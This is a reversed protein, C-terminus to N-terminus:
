ISDQYRYYSSFLPSKRLFRSLRATSENLVPTLIRRGRYLSPRVPVTYHGSSDKVVIVFPSNLAIGSDKLSAPSLQTIESVTTEVKADGSVENIQDLLANISSLRTPSSEPASSSAAVSGISGGTGSVAGAKAASAGSTAAGSVIKPSTDPRYSNVNKVTDDNVISGPAGASLSTQADRQRRIREMMQANEIEMQDLKDDKLNRSDRTSVIQNSRSIEPLTTRQAALAQSKQISATDKMAALMDEMTERQVEMARIREKRAIEEESDAIISLDSDGFFGSNRPAVVKEMNKLREYESPMRLADNSAIMDGKYPTHEPLTQKRGKSSDKVIRNRSNDAPDTSSSARSPISDGLSVREGESKNEAAIHAVPAVESEAAGVPISRLYQEKVKSTVFNAAFSSVGPRTEDNAQTKRILTRTLAKYSDTRCMDDQPCQLLEEIETPTRFSERKQCSGGNEVEQFNDCALLSCMGEQQQDPISEQESNRVQMTEYQSPIDLIPMGLKSLLADINQDSAEDYNESPCNLIFNPYIEGLSIDALDLEFLDLGNEVVSSDYGLSMKNFTNDGVHYDKVETCLYSELMEFMNACTSDMNQDVLKKNGENVLLSKLQEELNLSDGSMSSFDYKKLDEYVGVWLYKELDRIFDDSKLNNKQAENESSALSQLDIDKYKELFLNFNYERKFSDNMCQSDSEKPTMGLADIYEESIVDFLGDVDKFKGNSYKQLNTNIVNAQCPLNSKLKELSCKQEAGGEPNIGLSSMAFDRDSIELLDITVKKVLMDGLASNIGEERDKKEKKLFPLSLSSTEHCDSGDLNPIFAEWDCTAYSSQSAIFISITLITALKM